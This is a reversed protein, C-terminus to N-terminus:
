ALEGDLIQGLLAKSAVYTRNASSRGHWQSSYFLCDLFEARAAEYDYDVIFIPFVFAVQGARCLFNSWFDDVEHGTVTASQDAKRQGLLPEVLKSYRQLHRLGVVRCAAPGREADRNLGLSANGRADRRGVARRSYLDSDIWPGLGPIQRPGSM